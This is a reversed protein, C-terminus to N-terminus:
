RKEENCVGAGPKLSCVIQKLEDIQKQQSEIHAQQERFANVFLVSFQKYKVGEVVGNEGYTALLPEIKAVDEAGFGIDKMGGAIWEYSIPKLQRIVDLGSVFPKINTKYRLSSSCTSITSTLNRCLDTSGATGLSLVSVGGDPRIRFRTASSSGVTQNISLTGDSDVRLNMRGAGSQMSLNVAETGDDIINLNGGPVIVQDESRGLVVSNSSSVVAGAGIATAFSLNGAAVDASSGVVTNSNGTTNTDGAYSGLFTNTFGTSNGFGASKGFFSNSFGEDTRAGASEGFFSNEFGLLNDRGAQDGFFSNFRGQFVVVVNSRGADRGVFTNDGNPISLVRNSGIDFQTVAKFINATGTGSVNFNATQQTTTNQIYFGSGATPTRADSLRPDTSLVYQSSDVSCASLINDPNICLYDATAAGLTGVRVVDLGNRGLQITNSTTALAGAGIATAFTLNNSGTEANYGLLTNETGTTNTDGSGTGIFTNRSGLTNGSAASYGVFLNSAGDTNAAGSDGGLFTNFNGSVNGFGANTGFFSNAGGTENQVGTFNGFFSNNDGTTNNLGVGSGVFTNSIATTNAEGARDGIFTNYYGNTNGLGANNGVFVNRYGTSGSLINNIGANNGLFTSTGPAAFVRTNAINFQTAADFINATGTGDINFNSSIQPSTGNHVYFNSGATPPRADSLRPDVTQVYDAADVGGLQASNTSTDTSLSRISYPTSTVQQRPTLPTFVEGSNRRIEIQLYRDAGDAFPSSGFDLDVTFAGNSVGVNTLEITSGAQTGGVPLHFLSFRMEYTGNASIMNDTLRGQYTLGSTQASAIATCLIMMLAFYCFSLSPYKDKM